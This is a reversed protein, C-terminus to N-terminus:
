FFALAAWAGIAGITAAAAVAQLASLGGRSLLVSRNNSAADAMATSIFARLVKEENNLILPATLDELGDSKNATLEIKFKLAAAQDLVAGDRDVSSTSQSISELARRSPVTQDFESNEQSEELKMHENGSRLFPEQEQELDVASLPINSVTSPMDRDSQIPLKSQSNKFGHATDSPITTSTATVLSEQFRKPEILVDNGDGHFVESLSPKVATDKLSVSALVLSELESRMLTQTGNLVMAVGGDSAEILVSGMDLTGSINATLPPLNVFPCGTRPHGKRPQKCKTCHPAKRKKPIAKTPSAPDACSTPIDHLSLDARDMRPVGVAATSSDQTPSTCLTPEITIPKASSSKMNASSTYHRHIKKSFELQREVPNAATKIHRRPHRLALRQPLERQAVTGATINVESHEQLESWERRPQGQWRREARGAHGPTQARIPCKLARSSRGLRLQQKTERAAVSKFCAFSDGRSRAGSSTMLPYSAIRQAGTFPAPDQAPDAEQGKSPDHHQRSRLDPSCINKM